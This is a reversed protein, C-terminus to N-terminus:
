GVEKRGVVVHLRCGRGLVRLDDGKKIIAIGQMLYLGFSM